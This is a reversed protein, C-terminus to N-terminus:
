QSLITYACHHAHQKIHLVNEHCNFLFCQRPSHHLAVTLNCKEFLITWTAMTTQNVRVRRCINRM